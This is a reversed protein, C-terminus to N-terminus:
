KRTKRGVSRARAKTGRRTTRGLRVKKGRPHLSANNNRDVFVRRPPHYAQAGGVHATRQSLMGIFSRTTNELDTIRKSLADDVNKRPVSLAAIIRDIEGSDHMNIIEEVNEARLEEDTLKSMNVLLHTFLSTATARLEDSPSGALRAVLNFMEANRAAKARVARSGIFEQQQMKINERHERDERRLGADLNMREARHQHNQNARGYQHETQFQMKNAEHQRANQARSEELETKLTEIEILHRQRQEKLAEAHRARLEELEEKNRQELDAKLKAKELEQQHDQEAKQHQNVSKIQEVELRHQHELKDLGAKNEARIREELAIMEQKHQAALNATELDHRHKQDNLALQFDAKHLSEEIKGEQNVRAMDVQHEQRVLLEEMAREARAREKIVEVEYNILAKNIEHNKLTERQMYENVQAALGANTDQLNRIVQEYDNVIADHNNQLRDIEQVEAAIQNRLDEQLRTSRQNTEVLFTNQARAEQLEQTLNEVQQTLGTVVANNRLVYRGVVDEMAVGVRHREAEFIAERQNLDAERRIVEAQQRGLEEAFEQKYHESGRLLEDTLKQVRESLNNIMTKAKRSESSFEDKVRGHQATLLAVETLLDASKAKETKIVSELYKVRREKEGLLNQQDLNTKGTDELNKRLRLADGRLTDLESNLQNIVGGRNDIEQLLQAVYDGYRVIVKKLDEKTKESRLETEDVATYLKKIEQKLKKIVLHAGVLSREKEKLQEAVPRLAELEAVVQQNQQIQARLDNVTRREQNLDREVTRLKKTEQNRIAWADFYQKEWGEITERLRDAEESLQQNIEILENRGPHGDDPVADRRAVDAVRAILQNIEGWFAPSTVRNKVQGMVQRTQALVNRSETLAERYGNSRDTERNLRAQLDEALNQNTAAAELQQRLDDIVRNTQNLENTYHTETHALRQQLSELQTRLDGNSIELGVMHQLRDRHEQLAHNAEELRQSVDNIQTQYGNLIGTVATILGERGNSTINGHNYVLENLAGEYLAIEHELGTVMDELSGNGVPATNKPLLRSVDVGKNQLISVIEERTMGQISDLDIKSGGDSDTSSGSSEEGPVFEDTEESDIEEDLPQVPVDEEDGFYKLFINDFRDKSMDEPGDGIKGENYYRLGELLDDLNSVDVPQSSQIILPAEESPVFSLETLHPADELENTLIDQLHAAMDSAKTITDVLNVANDVWTRRLPSTNNPLDELLKQWAYDPHSRILDGLSAGSVAEILRNVFPYIQVAYIEPPARTDSVGSLSPSRIRKLLRDIQMKAFLGAQHANQDKLFINKKTPSLKSILFNLTAPLHEIFSDSIIDEPQVRGTEEDVPFEAPFGVLTLDTTPEPMGPWDFPKLRDEPNKVVFPSLKDNPGFTISSPVVAQASTLLSQSAGTKIDQDFLPAEYQLWPHDPHPGPEGRALALAHETFRILNDSIDGITTLGGRYPKTNDPNASVFEKVAEHQAVIRQRYRRASTKDRGYTLLTLDRLLKPIVNTPGELLITKLPEPYHGFDGADVYEIPEDPVSEDDSTTAENSDVIDSGPDPVPGPATIFADKFLDNQVDKKLLPRRATRPNFQVGKWYEAAQSSAYTERSMTREPIVFGTVQDRLGDALQQRLELLNKERERAEAGIKLPPEKVGKRKKGGTRKNASTKVKVRQRGGTNQSQVPQESQNSPEM